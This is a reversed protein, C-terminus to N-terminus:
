AQIAQIRALFRRVQERLVFQERFGLRIFVVDTEAFATLYRDLRANALLPKQTVRFRLFREGDHAVMEDAEEWRMPFFNVRLPQLVNLIPADTALYPPSVPYRRTGSIEFDLSWIGFLRSCRRQTRAEERCLFSPGPGRYARCRTKM